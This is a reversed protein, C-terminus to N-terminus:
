MSVAARESQGGGGIEPRKKAGAAVASVVVEIDFPVIGCLGFCVAYRYRFTEFGCKEATLDSSGRCRSLGPDTASPLSSLKDLVRDSLVCSLHDVPSENSGLIVRLQVRPCYRVRLDM